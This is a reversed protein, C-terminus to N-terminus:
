HAGKGKHGHPKGPHPPAPPAAISPLLAALRDLPPIIRALAAGSVQQAPGAPPALQRLLDAVKHAADVTNNIALAQAIDDLRHGLDNAAGQGLEGATQAQSIAARARTLAELPTAAAQV